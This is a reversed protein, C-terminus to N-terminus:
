VGRSMGSARAVRVARAAVVVLPAARDAHARRAAPRPPPMTRWRTAPPRAHTSNTRTSPASRAPPLTSAASCDANYRWPARPHASYGHVARRRWAAARGSSRAARRRWRTCRAPGASATHDGRCCGSGRPTRNRWEESIPARPSPSGPAGDPGADQRPRRRPEIRGGGGCSGASGAVFCGSRITSPM